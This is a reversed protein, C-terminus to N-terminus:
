QASHVAMQSNQMQFVIRIVRFQQHFHKALIAQINRQGLDASREIKLGGQSETIEVQDQGVEPQGAVTSLFSKAQRLEQARINWEDNNGASDTFLGGNATESGSCSVEHQLM